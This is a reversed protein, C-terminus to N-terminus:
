HMEAQTNKKDRWTEASIMTKITQNMMEEAVETTVVIMVMTTFVIMKNM